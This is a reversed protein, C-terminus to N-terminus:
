PSSVMLVSFVLDSNPPITGTGASGYALNAPIYLNRIGGPVM